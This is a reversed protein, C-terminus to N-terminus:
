AVAEHHGFVLRESARLAGVRRLAEDLKEYTDHLVRADPQACLKSIRTRDVGSLEELQLQTLDKREMAAALTVPTTNRKTHKV